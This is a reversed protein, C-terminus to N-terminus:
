HSWNFPARVGNRQVQSWLANLWRAPTAMEGGVWLQTVGGLPAAAAPVAMEWVGAVSGAAPHWAGSLAATGSLAVDAGEAAAIVVPAAATGALGRPLLVTPERYTGSLLRCEDGAARLTGVCAAVTQLPAAHTGDGTDDCGSPAAFTVTTAVTTSTTTALM